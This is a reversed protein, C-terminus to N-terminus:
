KIIGRLQNIAARIRTKVTGLPIGLEEATEEQTYGEFYLKDILIKYDPKLTDIINKLGIHDVPMTVSHQRNISRVSNDISRIQNKIAYGKVRTSDIAANRAINILWTFLKGKSRDYSSINKWVKVFVEQLVDEANERSEIIRMIAGLLAASYNDYLVAMASQEGAKLSAVLEEEPISTKTVM